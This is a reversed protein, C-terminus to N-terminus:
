FKVPAKLSESLRNIGAVLNFGGKPSSNFNSFSYRVVKSLM